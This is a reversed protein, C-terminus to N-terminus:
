DRSLLAAADQVSETIIFLRDFGSIAFVERVRPSMHALGLAGSAAATKKNAALLVKLGGSSLYTVDGFDVILKFHNAEFQSNLTAELISGTNSDLRGNPTVVWLHGRLEHAPFTVQHARMPYTGPQIMKIM